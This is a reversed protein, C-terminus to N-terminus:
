NTGYSYSPKFNYDKKITSKQSSLFSDAAKAPAETQAGSNATGIGAAGANLDIQYNNNIRDMNNNWKNTGINSSGADFDGFLDESTKGSMIDDEYARVRQKAQKVEPSHEIPTREKKSAAKGSGKRVAINAETVGNHGEIDQVRVDYGAKEWESSLSKLEDISGMTPLDKLSKWGAGHDDIDSDTSSLANFREEYDANFPGDGKIQQFNGGENWSDSWGIEGSDKESRWGSEYFDDPANKKDANIEGYKAYAGGGPIVGESANTVAAGGSNDLRQQQKATFRNKSLQKDLFEQAADAM